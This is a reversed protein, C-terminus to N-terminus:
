FIDEFDTAKGKSRPTIKLELDLAACLDFITDLNAGSSGTEIKSITEQWLGCLEALEGQSLGAKKRAERLAVGVDKSTRAIHEM